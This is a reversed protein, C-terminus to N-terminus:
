FNDGPMEDLLPGFFPEKEREDGIVNVSISAHRENDLQSSVRM